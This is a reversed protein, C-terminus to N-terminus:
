RGQGQPSIRHSKSLRAFAEIAASRVLPAGAVSGLLNLVLLSALVASWELRGIDMPLLWRAFASVALPGILPLAVDRLYWRRMEGPLIRQHMLRITVLLYCVNLVAWAIAAGLPGFKWTGILIAPVLFMVAVLNTVMALRGWGHALQLAYPLHMLGHIATGIVLLSLVGGMSDAVAYNGMWVFLLERPFFVAVVALGFTLVAMLQCGRHYLLGMESEDKVEVLQTLRPYLASFIPAFLRYLAAAAMSVISYYGFMELTLLRSLMIKDLQTLLVSLLATIFLSGAFRVQPQLLGWRFSPSHHSAPLSRWLWIGVVVTHLMGIAAQFAFFTSASPNLFWLVPLVGAYRITLLVVNITALSAQRQLGMLGGSYLALPWQFALALAMMYVAERVAQDSLNKPQVWHGAIDHAGLFMLLGMVLAIAWYIGEMTRLLDRMRPHNIPDLSLRAFERNLIINLGLDLLGAVAQITTFLGVLGFSEPGMAAIYLPVTVVWLVPM